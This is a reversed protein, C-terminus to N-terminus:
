RLRAMPLHGICQAVGVILDVREQACVHKRFSIADGVAKSVVLVVEGSSDIVRAVEVAQDPLTPCAAPICKIERKTCGLERDTIAAIRPCLDV